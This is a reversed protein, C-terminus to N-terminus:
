PVKAALVVRPVIAGVDDEAAYVPGIALGTELAADLPVHHSYSVMGLDSVAEHERAADGSLQAFRVAPVVPNGKEDFLGIVDAGRTEKYLRLIAQGRTERDLESLRLTRAALSLADLDDL